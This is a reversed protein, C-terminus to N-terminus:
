GDAFKSCSFKKVQAYKARRRIINRTLKQNQIFVYIYVYIYIKVYM